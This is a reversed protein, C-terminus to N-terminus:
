EKEPSEGASRKQCNKRCSNLRKNGLNNGDREAARM